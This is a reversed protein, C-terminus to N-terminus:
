ETQIISSGVLASITSAWCGSSGAVVGDFCGPRCTLQKYFVCPLALIPFLQGVHAMGTTSRILVESFLIELCCAHSAIEVPAEVSDVAKNV